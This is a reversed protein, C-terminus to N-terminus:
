GLTRRIARPTPQPDTRGARHALDDNEGVSGSISTSNVWPRLYSPLGQLAGGLASRALSASFLPRNLEQAAALLPACALDDLYRRGDSPNVLAGVFGRTTVMRQLERAAAEGAWPDM